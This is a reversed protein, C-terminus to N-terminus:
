LTPPTVVLLKIPQDNLKFVAYVEDEFGESPGILRAAMVEDKNEGMEFEGESQKMREGHYYFEVTANGSSFTETNWGEIRPDIIIGPTKDDMPIPFPCTYAESVGYEAMISSNTYESCPIEWATLSHYVYMGYYPDRETFDTQTFEILVYKLYDYKLTELGIGSTYDLEFLNKMIDTRIKNYVGRPFAMVMGYRMHDTADVTLTMEYENFHIWDVGNDYSPIGRDVIREFTIIEFDDNLATIVFELENDINITTNNTDDHQRFKKGDLSVEWGYSSNTPGAITINDDGMGKYTIPFEFINQGSEDSFKVTFGDEIDIPYRERYGDPIIRAMSETIEGPVGTVSGGYFEVWDPYEVAAFRFNAEIHFPIYGDYGLEISDKETDTVDYLKMYLKDPGREITAIIAHNAGMKMTIHAFTPEKRIQEDTIHMTITHTGAHGSMDQLEGASTVFKCWVADSSLQWDGTVTFTLTPRDGANCIFEKANPLIHNEEKDCSALTFSLVVALLLASLNSSKVYSQLNNLRKM